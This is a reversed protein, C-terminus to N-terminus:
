FFVRPYFKSKHKNIRWPLYKKRLGATSLIPLASKVAEGTAYSKVTVFIVDFEKVPLDAVSSYSHPIKIIHEGWIGSICLGSTRIIDIHSSRGIVFVEAGIRTLLGTFVSGIAGAGFVLYRM